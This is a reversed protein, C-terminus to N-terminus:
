PSNLFRIILEATEAPREVHPRHWSRALLHFPAGLASAIRAGDASPVVPDLRGWIVMSPATIRGARAPTLWEFDFERLVAALATAAASDGAPAYALASKEEALWLPAHPPTFRSRLLEYRAIAARMLRASTSAGSTDPLLPPNVVLAADILVLARVRAPETAAIAAAVAGGLSHGVISADRIGLADMAGLVRAALSDTQYGTAPKSSLGMGPLDIAVVDFHPTLRDFLAQWAVLSEGYGHILILSPGSGARVTRLELQGSRVMRARHPPDARRHSSSLAILGAGLALLVAGVRAAARATM